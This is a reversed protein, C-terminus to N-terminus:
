VTGIKRYNERIRRAFAMATLKKDWCGWWMITQGAARDSKAAVITELEKRIDEWESSSYDENGGSERYLKKATQLDM